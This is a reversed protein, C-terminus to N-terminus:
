ENVQQQYAATAEAEFELGGEEEWRAVFEQYEAEVDGTTVILQALCEKVIDDLIVGYEQRSELTQAIYPYDTIVEWEAAQADQTTKNMLRTEANETTFGGYQNYCFAGAARHVVDDTYIGLRQYKGNEQDVWEYHVGEVGMYTLAQGEETYYMYNLLKVALEPNECKANIVADAQQYNPYAKTSGAGNLFTFGFLDGPNEPVDFTYRGPYWNNTTGVSQFDIVGVKGQWLREFTQMLTLTAFDPDILGDQYLKRLYDVAELFRPHKIFTTVTGDELLVVGNTFDFPIGFATMIHQFGSPDAMCMAMGYTDKQGNGDPDNYTFAYLVDYFSDLDTPMELGVNELWDKRITLNKPYLGAESVLGYVGGENVVPMYLRDGLYSLIDPGNEALLPEMDLLRGADRLELLTNIETVAYIDPESGSAILTNLKAAYDAKPIVSIQIQAGIRNGLETLVDNTESPTNDGQVMMTIVPLEEAAAPLAMATLLLAVTLLLSLLKKM